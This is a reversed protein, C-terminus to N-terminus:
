FLLLHTQHFDQKHQNIFKSRLWLNKSKNLHIAVAIYNENKCKQFTIAQQHSDQIALVHYKVASHVSPSNKNKRIIFKLRVPLTRRIFYMM